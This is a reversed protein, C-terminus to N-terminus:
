RTDPVGGAFREIVIRAAAILKRAKTRHLGVPRIINEVEAPKASALSKLNPFRAFLEPTVENVQADTTQASLIAAVLLQQVDRHKIPVDPLPYLEDLVRAIKKARAKEGENSEKVM